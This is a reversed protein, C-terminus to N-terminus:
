EINDPMKEALSDAIEQMMPQFGPREKGMSTLLSNLLRAHQPPVDLAAAKFSEAAVGPRDNYVEATGLMAQGTWDEPHCATYVKLGEIVRDLGGFISLRRCFDAFRAMNAPNDQVPYVFCCGATCFFRQYVDLLDTYFTTQVWGSDAERSEALKRGAEGYDGNLMLDLAWNNLIVACGPLLTDARKYLDLATDRKGAGGHGAWYSYVDAEKQNWYSLLPALKSAWNYSSASFSLLNSRKSPDNIQRAIDFAYYGLYGYYVPERSDLNVADILLSMTRAPERPWSQLAENLKMDALFSNFTLSFGAAVSLALVAIAAAKRAPSIRHGAYIDEAVPCSGADAAESEERTELGSLVVMFTMSLWFMLDPLIANPSFFIHICYQTVGAVLAATLLVRERRSTSAMLRFGLYFFVAVVALVAALGLLGITVALYLYYNEPQAGLMSNYAYSSRYSAPNSVQWVLAFTEPGYGTVRRLALFNDNSLPVEPSEIVMNAASEWMPIRGALSVLGVQEAVPKNQPLYGPAPAEATRLVLPVVLVVAFVIVTLAILLSSFLVIKKRLFVGILLFFVVVGILFVLMTVSYQALSLCILELALATFLGTFRIARARGRKREYWTILALAINVPLVMALYCSLSLANGDTSYVRDAFAYWPLSQTAMYQINQQNLYQIIGLLSVLGASIILVHLARFLRPRSNMRAAVILFFIIWSLMTVLGHKRSLSGWFSAEPSISLLTSVAWSLGLVIVAAQLPSQKLKAPLNIPSEKDGRLFWRALYLGLLLCVGFQLLLAKAFYFAQYGSPNFYLPLLFILLLWTLEMAADLRGRVTAGALNNGRYM